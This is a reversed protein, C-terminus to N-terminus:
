QLGSLLFFDIENILRHSYHKSHGKYGSNDCSGQRYKSIHLNSLNVQGLLLYRVRMRHPPGLISRTSAIMNDFDKVM